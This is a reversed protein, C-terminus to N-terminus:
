IEEQLLRQLNEEDFTWENKENEKISLKKSKIFTKYVHILVTIVGIIIVSFVLIQIITSLIQQFAFEIPLDNLDFNPKSPRQGMSGSSGGEPRVFGDPKGMGFNMNGKKRVGTSLSLIRYLYSFLSNFRNGVMNSFSYFTTSISVIITILALGSDFKFLKKQNEKNYQRNIKREAWTSFYYLSTYALFLPLLLMSFTFFSIFMAILLSGKILYYLNLSMEPQKTRRRVGDRDEAEKRNIKKQKAQKKRQQIRAKNM